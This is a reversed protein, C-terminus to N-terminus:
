DSDRFGELVGPILDGLDRPDMGAHTRHQLSWREGCLAHTQVVICVRDFVDVVPSRDPERGGQAILSGIMGALVDGTGGVGLCPHGHQCVWQRMPDCVVTHHGKLVVITGLARAILSCAKLRQDDDGSPDADIGLADILRSAEGPHPTLVIQTQHDAGNLTKIGESHCLSSIGDADIVLGGVRDTNAPQIAHNMLHEIPPGTGLGPGIVMADSETALRDFAHAADTPDILQDDAIKIPYGTAFPALTLVASLIPGPSAIKVLGCGSRNAGMAVLAPAGLMRAKRSQSEGTSGCSGAIIGVTGFTGKHGDIPRAPLNPLRPSDM